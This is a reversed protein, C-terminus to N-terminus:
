RCTKEPMKKLEEPKSEIYALADILVKGFGPGDFLAQRVSRALGAQAQQLQESREKSEAEFAAMLEALLARALTKGSRELLCAEEVSVTVSEVVDDSVVTVGDADDSDDGEKVPPEFITPEPEQAELATIRAKIEESRGRAEAMDMASQGM